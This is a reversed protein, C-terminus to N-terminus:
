QSKRCEVNKVLTLANKKDITLVKKVLFTQYLMFFCDILISDLCNKSYIFTEPISWYMFISGHAHSSTSNKTNKSHMNWIM